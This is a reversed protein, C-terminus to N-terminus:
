RQSVLFNRMRDIPLYWRMTSMFHTILILLIWIKLTDYVLFSLSYVVWDPLVDIKSFLSIFFDM